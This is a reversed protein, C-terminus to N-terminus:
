VLTDKDAEPAHGDGTLFGDRIVEVHGPQVKQCLIKRWGQENSAVVLTHECEVGSCRASEVTPYLSISFPLWLGCHHVINTYYVYM